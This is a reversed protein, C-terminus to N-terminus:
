VACVVRLHTVFEFLRPQTHRQHAAASFLFRLSLNVEWNDSHDSESQGNPSLGNYRLCHQTTTLRIRPFSSAIIEILICSFANSFAVRLVSSDYEPFLLVLMRMIVDDFPFMKRTAPGKHPSNVPWRHIRRVFALSASSQHKRQATGSYVTSYDIMLSTIQYAMAGM